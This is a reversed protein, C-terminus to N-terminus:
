GSTDECDILPIVIDDLDCDDWVKLKKVKFRLEDPSHILDSLVQIERWWDVFIVVWECGYPGDQQLYVAVGVRGLIESEERDKFFSELSDHVVITKQATEEPVRTVGCPRYLVEAEYSEKGDRLKDDCANSLAEPVGSKNLVRFICVSAGDTSASEGLAFFENGAHFCYGKDGVTQSATIGSRDTLAMSSAFVTDDLNLLQAQTTNPFQSSELLEYRWKYQGDETDLLSTSDADSLTQLIKYIGGTAAKLKTPDDPDVMAYRYSPDSPTIPMVVYRHGYATSLVDDRIPSKPIVINDIATHWIPDKVKLILSNASLRVLNPDSVALAPDEASDVQQLVFRDRLDADIRKLIPATQKGAKKQPEPTLKGSRWEALMDIILSWMGSDALFPAADDNPNPKSPLRM